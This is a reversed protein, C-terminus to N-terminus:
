RAKRYCIPLAPSDAQSDRRQTAVAAAGIGVAVVAVM